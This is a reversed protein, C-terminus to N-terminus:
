VLRLSAKRYDIAAQPTYHSLWRQQEAADQVNFNIGQMGINRTRSVVPALSVRGTGRRAYEELTIDWNHFWTWHRRIVPWSTNPCLWGWVMFGPKAANFAFPDGTESSTETFGNVTLVRTRLDPSAMVQAHAWRFYDYGDVSLEIDAELIVAAPVHLYEFACRLLFHVNSATPVDTRIFWSPIGLYPPSHRVHITPAFDVAQILATIEPVAGDQSIVLVSESIHSNKRLAELVSRFYEPRSYVPILIPITSAPIGLERFRAAARELEVAQSVARVASGLLVLSVVAGIIAALRLTLPLSLFRYSSLRSLFYCRRATRAVCHDRQFM